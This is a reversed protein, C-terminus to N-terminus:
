FLPVTGKPVRLPKASATKTAEPVKGEEPRVDIDINDPIEDLDVFCGKFSIKPDLKNM